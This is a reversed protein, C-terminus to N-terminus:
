AANESTQVSIDSLCAEAASFMSHRQFSKVAEVETDFMKFLRDIGASELVVRADMPVAALKVDGNRKMAEELCCLLLHLSSRDFARRNSCNLVIRPRDANLSSKLEQLFAWEQEENLTEPLQSVTVTRLQIAMEIGGLKSQDKV